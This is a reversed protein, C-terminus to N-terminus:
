LASAWYMQVPLFDADQKLMSIEAPRQFTKSFFRAVQIWAPMEQKLKAHETQSRQVTSVMKDRFLSTPLKVSRFELSRGKHIMWETVNAMNSLRETNTQKKGSIFTPDTSGVRFPLHLSLKSGKSLAQFMYLTPTKYIAWKNTRWPFTNCLPTKKKEKLRVEFKNAWM